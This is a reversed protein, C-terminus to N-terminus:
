PGLYFKSASRGAWRKRYERTPLINSIGNGRVCFCTCTPSWLRAYESSNRYKNRREHSHYRKHSIRQVKTSRATEFKAHDRATGPSVKIAYCQSTDESFRCTDSIVGRGGNQREAHQQSIPSM